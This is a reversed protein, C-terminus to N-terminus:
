ICMYIHVYIYAYIYTYMFIYVYTDTGSKHRCVDFKEDIHCVEIAFRLPVSVNQIYQNVSIHTHLMPNTRLRSSSISGFKNFWLGYSVSFLVSSLM